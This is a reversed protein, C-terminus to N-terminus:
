RPRSTIVGNVEYNNAQLYDAGLNLPAFSYSAGFSYLRNDAFGGAEDSFAYLAGFRLRSYSISSYKVANDVRFSNNLNDNDFPHASTLLADVVSYKL